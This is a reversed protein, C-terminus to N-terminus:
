ANRMQLQTSIHLHSSAAVTATTVVGVVYHGAAPMAFDAGVVNNSSDAAPTNLAVTSGAIVTGVTYIVLGTGGSTAPRTVPYLGFTYNGTPAVDNVFVQARIRLKAALGDVTPFDAPDIYITNMPYLTGTGVVAIPDGQPMMYTGAVRGATHSGSCDLINRYSANPAAARVYATTAAKLSNDGASPTAPLTLAATTLSMSITANVRWWFAEVSHDYYFRGVDEDDTDGFNIGCVSGTNGSIISVAAQAGATTSRAFTALTGTGIVPLVSGNLQFLSGVVDVLLPAASVQLQYTGKDTASGVRVQGDFYNPAAGAMYCNWQGAATSTLGGHFAYNSVGSTLNGARFAYNNTISHGAGPTFSQALYHHLSTTTFSAAVSSFNTAYGSVGTTASALIQQTVTANSVSAGASASAFSTAGSFTNNGSHTNNGNLLPITAGSTGTPLNGSHYLDYTVGAIRARLNSSAYWLQGNQLAGPATGDFQIYPTNVSVTSTFSFFTVSNGTGLGLATRTGPGDTFIPPFLLELQSLIQKAM